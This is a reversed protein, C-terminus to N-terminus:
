RGSAGSAAPEEELEGWGGRVEGLKGLSRVKDATAKIALLEAEVAPLSKAASAASFTANAYRAHVGFLKIPPAHAPDAASAAAAAAKKPAAKKAFSRIALRSTARSLM